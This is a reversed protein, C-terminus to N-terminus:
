IVSVSYARIKADVTAITLSHHLAQCILMRDFPDNHLFALKLLYVVLFYSHKSSNEDVKLHM